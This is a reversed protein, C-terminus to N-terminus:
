RGLSSYFLVDYTKVDRIYSVCINKRVNKYAVYAIMIITVTRHNYM